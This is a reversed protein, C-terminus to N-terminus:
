KSGGSWACGAEAAAAAGLTILNTLEGLETPLTGTLSNSYLYLGTCLDPTAICQQYHSTQEITTALTLTILEPWAFPWALLFLAM